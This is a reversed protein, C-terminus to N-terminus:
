SNPMMMLEGSRNAIQDFYLPLTILHKTQGTATWSAHLSQMDVCQHGQAIWGKVLQIFFPLLKQGELEAHLTFVQDNPNQATLKLLYHVVDQANM